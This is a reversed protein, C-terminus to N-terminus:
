THKRCGRGRKESKCRKFLLLLLINFILGKIEGTERGEKNKKRGDGEKRGKGCITLCYYVCYILYTL